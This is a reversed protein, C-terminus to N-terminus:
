LASAPRVFFDMHGVGISSHGAAIHERRRALWEDIAPFALEGTERAAAAWGALLDGQIDGDRPGLTWDSAGRVIAYDSAEFRAMAAFAATPGLAPGFGKDGRQHRNVAAVIAADLPDAPDFTVRGDYTLAAYFLLSRAVIEKALDALWDGSVLDLLASATVLDVPGALATGFARAIDMPVTAVKKAAGPESSARALLRLDNDVLRWSQAPALRPAIARLTAGAGCALDVIALTPRSAVTAELAALVAPNRARLDYPERLALWDASFATM